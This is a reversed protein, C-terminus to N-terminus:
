RLRPDLSDRLGDGLLVFGLVILSLAFSPFLVMHPYVELFQQGEAVMKGLSASESRLGFGLYSLAAESIITGGTLAFAYVLTPTVANPLVHRLLLRRNSAGLARAAEVYESNRVAIVSGRFLRALSVWGFVAIAAIIATKGGGLAVVVIITGVLFPFGLWIDIIRSLIADVAGGFFGAMGGILLGVFLSMSIVSFGVIMSFRAGHVVRSFIDRGLHDTGFWHKLSPGQRVENPFFGTEPFRAIQDAFIASLIVLALIGMGVLALRNRRLRRWFEGRLSTVEPELGAAREPDATAQQDVGTAM